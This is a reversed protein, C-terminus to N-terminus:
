AKAEKHIQEVTMQSYSNIGLEDLLKTVEALKTRRQRDAGDQALWHEVWDKADKLGLGTAERLLKIGNIKNGTNIQHWCEALKRVTKADPNEIRLGPLVPPNPSNTYTSGQYSSTISPPGQPVAADALKTVEYSSLVRYGFGALKKDVCHRFYQNHRNCWGDSELVCDITPKAESADNQKLHRYVLGYGRVVDALGLFIDDRKDCAKAKEHLSTLENDSYGVPAGLGRLDEINKLVTTEKKATAPTEGAPPMSTHIPYARESHLSHHRCWAFGRGGYDWYEADRFCGTASCRRIMM